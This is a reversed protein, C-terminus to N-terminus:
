TFGFDLSSIRNKRATFAGESSDFFLYIFYFLIFILHHTILDEDNHRGQRQREALGGHQKRERAIFSRKMQKFIKFILHNALSSPWKHGDIKNREEAIFNHKM